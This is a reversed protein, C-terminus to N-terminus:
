MKLNAFLDGIDISNHEPRFIRDYEQCYTHLYTEDFGTHQQKFMVPAGCNCDALKFDNVLQYAISMNTQWLVFLEDTSSPPMNKLNYHLNFIENKVNWPDIVFGAFAHIINEKGECLRIIEYMDQSLIVIPCNDGYGSLGAFIEGSSMNKYIDYLELIIRNRQLNNTILINPIDNYKKNLNWFSVIHKNIYYRRSTDSKLASYDEMCFLKNEYHKWEHVFFYCESCYDIYSVYFTHCRKCMVDMGSYPNPEAMGFPNPEAM